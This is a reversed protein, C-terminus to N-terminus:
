QMVECTFRGYSGGKAPRWDGLGVYRGANEVVIKLESPDIRTEDFEINATFSWGAPFRPRVRMIRSGGTVVVSKALVFNPDDALAEPDKPGRYDLPLVDELIMLSRKFETGLRNLKAAEVLCAKLNEAPLHIGQEKNYYLSGLLESRAIAAHDDDTKKRKSTLSKHQKAMADLPNAYRDSHMLLPTVGTVKLKMTSM